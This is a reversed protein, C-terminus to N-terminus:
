ELIIAWNQYQLNELRQDYRPAPKLLHPLIKYFQYRSFAAFFAFIDKLFVRSDINCGGYEFQIVKIRELGLLRSAGRLCELEHGEVDVKLFDIHEIGKEQCYDDLTRLLIMESYSPLDPNPVGELGERRYLSNLGSGEGIVFLQAPGNSSGLGVNNCTVNAPFARATLRNFTPLSPEFCHLSIRPNIWLALESWDGVNAGVDFVVEAAPLRERLFRLEGNLTMDTNNDGEYDFVYRRCFQYVLVDNRPMRYLLKSLVRSTLNM